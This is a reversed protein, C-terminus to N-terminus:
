STFVLFFICHSAFYARPEPELEPELEPEPEPEPESEPGCARVNTVRLLKVNNQKRIQSSNELKDRIKIAIQFQCAHTFREFVLFFKYM